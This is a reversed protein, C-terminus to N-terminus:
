VRDLLGDAVMVQAGSWDNFCLTVGELGLSEMFDAVIRGMGVCPSTPTPRMPEPHSGLPLTPMLCRHTPAM